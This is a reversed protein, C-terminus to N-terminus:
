GDTPSILISWEKFSKGKRTKGIVRGDRALERLRASAACESVDTINLEHVAFWSEPNATLLEIILESATKPKTKVATNDDM